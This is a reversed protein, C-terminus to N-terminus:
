RLYDNTVIDKVAVHGTLHFTQSAIDITHQMSSTPIWGLPKGEDKAQPTQMLGQIIKLEAVGAAQNVTPQRKRMLEVAQDPHALAYKYGKMTAQTFAKVIDPHAKAYDQRWILGNNLLDVGYDGYMFFKVQDGNQAKSQLFPATLAFTMMADARHNLLADNLAQPNLQLWHIKSKDIGNAKAFADFFVYPTSGASYAITKGELDKPTKIGSSSLYFIASPNKAYIVASALLPTKQEEIVKVMYGLDNFGVQASKTALATFAPGIGTGQRLTVDLGAQKYYGKELATYFPAHRGFPLWDLQVTIPTLNNGSGDSGGSSSAGCGSLAMAALVVIAGIVRLRHQRM